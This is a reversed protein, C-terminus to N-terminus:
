ERGSTPDRGEDLARWLDLSSREAPDGDAAPAGSSPADYRRGMEPWSRVLRVGALAAVTALLGGVGALWYWGSTAVVQDPTGLDARLADPVAWWAWAWTAVLGGAALLGLWTLLWRVRGRTVLLAGWVALCVLGLSVALPAQGGTDTLGAVLPGDPAQEPTFWVRTSAVTALGSGALGALAVPGLTRRSPRSREDPM